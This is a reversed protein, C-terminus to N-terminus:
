TASGKQCSAHAAKAKCCAGQGASSRASCGAAVAHKQLSAVLAPDQATATIVVGSSTKEVTRTVGEAHMPCGSCGKAPCTGAQAQLKDVTAQDAGVLTVRVGNDLQTVTREVGAMAACCAAPGQGGALVPAAALLVVILLAFRQKSM